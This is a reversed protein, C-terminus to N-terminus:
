RAPQLLSVYSSIVGSEELAQLRRLCPAPSLGVRKALDVNSIRANEQLLELMRLDIDDLVPSEAM